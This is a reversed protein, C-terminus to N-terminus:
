SAADPPTSAPAATAAPAPTSVSTKGRRRRNKGGRHSRKKGGDDPKNDPAAKSPKAEAPKKEGTDGPKSTGHKEMLKEVPLWHEQPQDIYPMVKGKGKVEVPEVEDVFFDPKVKGKRSWLVATHIHSRPSEGELFQKCGSLTSGGKILDDILVIEDGYGPYKKAISYGCQMGEPMGKTQAAIVGDPIGGLSECVAMVIPVGGRYVGFGQKIKIGSKRLKIILEDIMRRYANYSVRLHPEGDVFVLEVGPRQHAKM